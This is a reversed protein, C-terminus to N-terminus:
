VASARDAIQGALYAADEGVGAFLGSKATHLWDLGLIYLGPVSTVGRRQIPYGEADLFPLHVWDLNPRYGMAWIVTSIGVDALNLETPAEHSIPESTLLDEPWDELPAELGQQAILDDIAQLWSRAQEDGWALNAALDAAFVARGDRVDQLRGLLTVGERALTHGNIDHGGDGGTLQPNSQGTRAGPPLEDVTREFWGILRAWATVDRGRYRRPAWWSRGGALFVRRGARVLEEAIQCGTEGSGVVLVAGPPLSGPNRYAPAVVQTVGTPLGAACAPVRPQQLAGTALVVQSARVSDDQTRVLFHPDAPRREITTVWVGERVPTAFSRAYTELHAVVEDKGMFGDPDDGSYALGPLRLSWNPAILRLSDWRKSRWSEAIRDQELVVHPRGQETLYYSMALGAQGGGVIVVDVSQGSM